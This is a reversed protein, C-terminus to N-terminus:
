VATMAKRLAINKMFFSNRRIPKKLVSLVERRGSCGGDEEGGGGAVSIGPSVL